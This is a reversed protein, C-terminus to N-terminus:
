ISATRLALSGGAHTGLPRISAKGNVPECWYLLPDASTVNAMAHTHLKGLIPESHSEVLIQLNREKSAEVLIEALREQTTAHLHLEPKDLIVTSGEPAYGLLVLLPLVQQTGSGADALDVMRDTHGFGVKVQYLDSGNVQDVQFTDAIGLFQLWWEVHQGLSAGLTPSNLRSALVAEVARSGDTGVDSPVTGRWLFQRPTRKRGPGLYLLYGAFQQELDLQLESVFGLRPDLTRTELPFGYCKVPGTLLGDSGLRNAHNVVASLAYKERTNKQRALSVTVGTPLTRYEFREVRLTQGAVGVTTSFGLRPSKFMVRDPHEPDPPAFMGAPHRSASWEYEFELLRSLCGGHFMDRLSGLEVVPGDSGGGLDLVRGPDASQVTQKMVLLPQLLSSKGANNTGFFATVNALDVKGTDQWAGFNKTRFRTIM